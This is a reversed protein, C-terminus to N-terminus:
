GPRPLLLAEPGLVAPTVLRRRERAVAGQARVPLVGVAGDQDGVVAEVLLARRPEARGGTGLPAGLDHGGVPLRMRVLLLDAHAPDGAVLQPEEDRRDVVHGLQLARRQRLPEEPAALDVERVRVSRRRERRGLAGVVAVIPAWQDGVGVAAAPLDGVRVETGREGTELSMLSGSALSDTHRPQGPALRTERVFQRAMRLIPRGHAPTREDETHQVAQRDPQEGHSQDEDVLRVTEQVQGVGLEAGHRASSRALHTLSQPQFQHAAKARARTTPTAVPTSTSRSRTRGSRRVPALRRHPQQQQRDATECSSSARVNM